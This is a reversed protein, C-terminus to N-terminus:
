ATLVSYELLEFIPLKPSDRRGIGYPSLLLPLSLLRRGLPLPPCCVEERKNDSLIFLSLCFDVSSPGSFHVLGDNREKWGHSESQISPTKLFNRFARFVIQGLLLLNQSDDNMSAPMIVQRGKNNNTTTTNTPPFVPLHKQKVLLLTTM